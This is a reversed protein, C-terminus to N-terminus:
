SKNEDRLENIMDTKQKSGLSSGFFYGVIMSFAAILAGTTMNLLTENDKPITMSALVILLVFFGVVILAALAFKFIDEVKMNNKKM